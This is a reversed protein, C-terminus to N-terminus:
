TKFCGFMSNWKFTSNLIELYSGEKKGGKREGKRKVERERRERVPDRNRKRNLMGFVM